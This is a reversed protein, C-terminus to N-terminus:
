HKEENQREKKTAILREENTRVEQSSKYKSKSTGFQTGVHVSFM